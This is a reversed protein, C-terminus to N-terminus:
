LQIASQRMRRVGLGMLVFVLILMFFLIPTDSNGVDTVIFFIAFIAINGLIWSYASDVQRRLVLWQFFGLILGFVAGNVLNSSSWGGYLLFLSGFGLVFGIFSAFIWRMWPTSPRKAPTHPASQVSPRKERKPRQYTHEISGAVVQPNPSPPVATKGEPQTVKPAEMRVTPSKARALYQTLAAAMEGASEYREAPNKAMARSIVMECGPPLTKNWQRVDPVPDHTHKYMLAATDNAVFPKQGALMEFLLIGLQYIDSRYDVDLGRIQEPTMYDPTGIMTVTHTSEALRVIGFDALYAYGEDDFLVNGPKLDRHIFHQKHAKDLAAGMRQTVDAAKDLSLPGSKLRDALSGGSMYRMVLYPWDGEEGYDYVPVVANHELLAITRAEKQFREHFTPDHSFQPPLVKIAVDRQFNLDHGLYVTAMGGRGIEEKIEYRGIQKFSM